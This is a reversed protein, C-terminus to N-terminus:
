RGRIECGLVTLLRYGSLAVPPEHVTMGVCFSAPAWTIVQVHLTDAYSECAELSMGLGGFPLNTTSQATLSKEKLAM